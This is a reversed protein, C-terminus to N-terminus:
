PIYRSSAQIKRMDPMTSPSLFMFARVNLGFDSELDHHLPRHYESRAQKVRFDFAERQAVVRKAIESM